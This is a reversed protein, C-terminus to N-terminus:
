PAMKHPPVLTEESDQLARACLQSSPRPDPTEAVKFLSAVVEVCSEVVQPAMGAVEDHCAFNQALHDAVHKWQDAVKRFIHVVQGCGM